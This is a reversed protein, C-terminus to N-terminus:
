SNLKKYMDRISKIVSINLGREYATLVINLHVDTDFARSVDLEAFYLKDSNEHSHLLLNAILHHAHDRDVGKKLRFQNDPTRVSTLYRTM